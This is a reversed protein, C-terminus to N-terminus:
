VAVTLREPAAAPAVPKLPNDKCLPCTPVFPRRVFWADICDKHYAHTCPLHRLCDNTVYAELCLACTDAEVGPEATYMMTPLAELQRTKREEESRRAKMKEIAARVQPDAPRRAIFLVVCLVSVFISILLVSAVQPFGVPEFRDSRYASPASPALHAVTDNM